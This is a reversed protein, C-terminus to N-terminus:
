KETEGTKRTAEEFVEVVHDLAYVPHCHVRIFRKAPIINLEPAVLFAWPAM